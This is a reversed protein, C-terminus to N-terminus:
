NWQQNSYVAEPRQMKEKVDKDRKNRTSKRKPPAGMDKEVGYLAIKKVLLLDDKYQNDGKGWLYGRMKDRNHIATTHDRGGMMEGIKKLSLKTETTLFWFCWQRLYVLEEKKSDSLVVDVPTEYADCINKIIKNGKAIERAVIKKDDRIIAPILYPSILINKQAVM